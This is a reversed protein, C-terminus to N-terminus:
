MFRLSILLSILPNAVSIDTITIAVPLIEHNKIGFIEYVALKTTFRKVRSVPCSHSHLALKCPPNKTQARASSNRCTRDAETSFVVQLKM